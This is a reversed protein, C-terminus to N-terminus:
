GEGMKERGSGDAAGSDTDPTDRATAWNLLATLEEQTRITGGISMGGGANARGCDVTGDARFQLYAFPRTRDMSNGFLVDVSPPVPNGEEAMWACLVRFLKENM